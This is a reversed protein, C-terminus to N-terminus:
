QVLCLEFASYLQNELLFICVDVGFTAHNKSNHLHNFSLNQMCYRELWLLSNCNNSSDIAVALEGAVRRTVKINYNFTVYRVGYSWALHHSSKTLSKPQWLPLFANYVVFFKRTWKWAACSLILFCALWAYLFEAKSEWLMNFCECATFNLAELLKKRRPCCKLKQNVRRKSMDDVVTPMIIWM